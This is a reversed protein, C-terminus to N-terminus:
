FNCQKTCAKYNIFGDITPMCLKLVNYEDLTLKIQDPKQLISKEPGEIMREKNMELIAMEGSGGANNAAYLSITLDKSLNM